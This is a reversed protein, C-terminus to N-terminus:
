MRLQLGVVQQYADKAAAETFKKEFLAEFDAAVPDNIASFAIAKAKCVVMEPFRVTFENQTYTVGDLDPLYGYYSVQFPLNGNAAFLINLTPAPQGLSTLQWHGSPALDSAPHTATPGVASICEYAIGLDVVENGQMYVGASSWLAPITPPWQVYVPVSVRRTTDPHMYVSYLISNSILRAQRRLVKEMPWVDCPTLVLDQAKLHIPSDQITLEKFNTTIGNDSTELSVFTNGNQVTFFDLQQMCQWSRRRQIETLAETIFSPFSSVLDDRMLGITLRQIIDAYTM